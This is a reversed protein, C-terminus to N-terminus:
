FLAGFLQLTYLILPFFCYGFLSISFIADIYVLSKSYSPISLAAVIFFLRAFLQLVFFSFIRISHQNIALADNFNGRIIESFASSLGKSPPLIGTKETLFAPIPHHDGRFILSYFFVSLVVLGFIINVAIYPKIIHSSFGIM